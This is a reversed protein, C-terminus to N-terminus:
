LALIRASAINKSISYEGFNLRTIDHQYKLKHKYSSSNTKMIFDKRKFGSSWNNIGM